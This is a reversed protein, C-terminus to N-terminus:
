NEDSSVCEKNELNGLAQSFSTNVYTVGDFAIREIHNYKEPLDVYYM